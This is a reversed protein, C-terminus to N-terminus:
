HEADERTFHLYDGARKASAKGAEVYVYRKIATGALLSVAAAISLARSRRACLLALAHCALPVPVSLVSGIRHLTGHDGEHLPEAVGAKEVRRRSTHSLVADAATAAVALRDLVRANARRGALSECLSLASAGAAM